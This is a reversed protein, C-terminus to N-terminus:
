LSLSFSPARPLSPLLSCVPLLPNLRGSLFLSPCQSLYVGAQPLLSLFSVNESRRLLLGFPHRLKLLNMRLLGTVAPKNGLGTRNGRGFFNDMRKTSNRQRRDTKSHTRNSGSCARRRAPLSTTDPPAPQGSEAAGSVPFM